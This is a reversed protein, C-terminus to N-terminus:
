DLQGSPEAPDRAKHPLDREQSQDTSLLEAQLLVWLSSLLYSEASGHSQNKALNSSVSQSFRAFPSQKESHTM